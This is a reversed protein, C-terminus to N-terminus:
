RIERKEYNAKTFFSVSASSNLMKTHARFVTCASEYRPLEEASSSKESWASSIMNDSLVLSSSNRSMECFACGSYDVYEPDQM